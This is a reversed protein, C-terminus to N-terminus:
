GEGWVRRGWHHFSNAGALGLRAFCIQCAGSAVTNVHCSWGNACPLALVICSIILPFVDLRLWPANWVRGSCRILIHPYGAAFPFRSLTFLVCCARLDIAGSGQLWRKREKRLQSRQLKMPPQFIHGLASREIRHSSLDPPSSASCAEGKHFSTHFFQWAPHRHLRM